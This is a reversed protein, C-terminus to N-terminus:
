VILTLKALYEHNEGQLLLESDMGNKKATEALTSFDVFLWDFSDGKIDKYEMQYKVEGYYKKNADIWMSGDEELFMYKIDTSEIIIQGNKNLLTKLHSLFDSLLILKGAIGIGNMLLLITDYKVNKLKKLDLHIVEKLGRKIMSEVAGKSSDIATIKEGKEQLWLAHPGAGAGIDLIKGYCIELAHKEIQPMMDYNRFLYSVPITDEESIDSHVIINENNNVKLYDKLAEGFPDKLM